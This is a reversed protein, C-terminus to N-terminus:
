VGPTHYEKWYNKVVELSQNLLQRQLKIMPVLDGMDAARLVLRVSKQNDVKPVLIYPLNYRRLILNVFLRASRGNGDSFPHIKTIGHYVGAILKVIEGLNNQKIKTQEAVLWSNFDRMDAAIAFPFSPMLASSRLKIHNQRLQGARPDVSAFVLNHLELLIDVTIPQKNKALKEILELAVVQGYAQLIEANPNKKLLSSKRGLKVLNQVQSKTLKVGEIVSSGFILEVWFYEILKKDLKAPM